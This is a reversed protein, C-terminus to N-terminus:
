ILHAVLGAAEMSPPNMPHLALSYGFFIWMVFIIFAVFGAAGLVLLEWVPIKHWHETMDINKLDMVM